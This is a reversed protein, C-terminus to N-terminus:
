YRITVGLTARWFGLRPETERTTVNEGTSVSRVHRLDFRVGTRSNFFGIAGGGISFAALNSDVAFFQTQDAAGEHLMGFGGSVYPRLSERTVSLPVALIAHGM